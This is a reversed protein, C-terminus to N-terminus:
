STSPNGQDHWWDEQELAVQEGLAAQAPRESVPAFPVEDVSEEAAPAQAPDHDPEAIETM